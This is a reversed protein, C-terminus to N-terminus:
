RFTVGFTVGSAGLIVDFISFFDIFMLAQIKILFSVSFTSKNVGGSGGSQPEQTPPLVLEVFGNKFLLQKVIKVLNVGSHM